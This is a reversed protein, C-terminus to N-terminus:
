ASMLGLADLRARYRLGAAKSSFQSRMTQRAREGIQERYASDEVVRRMLQAAHDLDPKALRSRRPKM